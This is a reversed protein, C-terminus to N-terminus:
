AFGQNREVLVWERPAQRQYTEGHLPGNLVVRWDHDPDKAARNEFTRLTRIKGYDHPERYVVEGDREVHADGFGVAIIAGLPLLDHARGCNLCGAAGGQVPPLKKWRKVRM